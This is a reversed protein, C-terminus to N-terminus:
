LGAGMRGVVAQARAAKMAAPRVCWKQVSSPSSGLMMKVTPTVMARTAIMAKIERLTRNERTSVAARIAVMAMAADTLRAVIFM